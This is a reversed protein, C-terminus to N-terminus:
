GPALALQVGIQSEILGLVRQFGEQSLSVRRTFGERTRTSLTERVRNIWRAATARHVGYLMGIRDISLGDIFHYRLLNRERSSLSALAEQFARSLERKYTKQLYAMEPDEHPSALLVAESGELRGIQRERGRRRNADRVACVCLWGSLEGRGAYAKRNPLAKQMEVLRQRLEQQVDDIVLAPTGLRSLATAVRSMYRRELAEVAGPIGLGYACALYLDGARLARLEGASEAPLCRALFVILTAPPLAIAPWAARGAEILHTLAVELDAATAFSARRDEPVHSLFHHALSM